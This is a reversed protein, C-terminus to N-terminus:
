KRKKEMMTMNQIEDDMLVRFERKEWILILNM